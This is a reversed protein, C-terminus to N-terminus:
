YPGKAGGANGLKKAVIPRESKRGRREETIYERAENTARAEERCSRGPEQSIKGRASDGVMGSPGMAARAQQKVM